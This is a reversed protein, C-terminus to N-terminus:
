PTSGNGPAGARLPAPAAEGGVGSYVRPEGLSGAPPLHRLFLVIAWTEEDGLIGRGAPMGSPALGNEVIWRLQGDRYAQVEPSALSPVPPMMAAAFPVGTAQGDLGHCVVCYSSFAKRGRRVNEDTDALPNRDSRGGVTIRHKVVRALASELRGPPRARCAALALFAAAALGARSM